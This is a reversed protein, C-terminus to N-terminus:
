STAQFAKAVTASPPSCKQAKQIDCIQAFVEVWGTSSMRWCEGRCYEADLQPFLKRIYRAWKTVKEDDLAPTEELGDADEEDSDKGGFSLRKLGHRSGAKPIHLKPVDVNLDLHPLVLERLDPCNNRFSELLEPTPVNMRCAEEEEDDVYSYSHWYAQSLEFMRLKRWALTFVYFDDDDAVLELMPCSMSFREVNTFVLLPSVLDYLYTSSTPGDANEDLTICINTMTAPSCATSLAKIILEYDTYEDAEPDDVIAHLGVSALVPANLANFLQALSSCNGGVSIQTLNPSHIEPHPPEQEANSRVEAIRLFEVSPMTALERFSAFSISAILNVGTLHEFSSIIRSHNVGIYAWCADICLYGLRPSSTHLRALFIHNQPDKEPGSIDAELSHPFPPWRLARLSPFISVGGNYSVLTDILQKHKDPICFPASIDLEQVLRAYWVLRGWRAPDAYTKESMVTDLFDSENFKQLTSNPDALLRWLPTPPSM